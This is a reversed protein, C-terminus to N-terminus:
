CAGAFRALSSQRTLGDWSALGALFLEIPTRDGRSVNGLSNGERGSVLVGPRPGDGVPDAASLAALEEKLAKRSTPGSYLQVPPPEDGFTVVGGSVKDLLRKKVQRKEFKFFIRLNAMDFAKGVATLDSADTVFEELREFVQLAAEVEAEADFADVPVVEAAEIQQQIEVEKQKLKGLVKGMVTILDRSAVTVNYEATEIDNQVRKLDARLKNVSATPASAPVTATALEVLRKHLRSRLDLALLRSKLCHLAFRTATARDVANHNCYAGYSNMYLSCRYKLSGSGYLLSGCNMDFLRVGLPNLGPNQSRPKGKQTGARQDLIEILEAHEKPDIIAPFADTTFEIAASNRVVKPKRDDRYDAVTLDRPGDPGLRRQDGMSRRGHTCVAAILSNRGINTVTTAHWIGSNAHKIGNDTRFRGHDPPEVGEKTLAAAIRCAPLTRLDNLIRRITMMHPHDDPLPLWIVHHHRRHVYEGDVLERKSQDTECYLFRRFGYPARGGTSYGAKALALQSHIIKTALDRRDKGAQHFDVLSVILDGIDIRQGIQIPGAVRDFYILTIGAQRFELELKAGDMPNDPRALRDRRPILVHSVSQDSKVRTLLADLAPRSLLHGQVDYDVFLHGSVPMRDRIMDAIADATGDFKLKLKQAEGRAWAVYEGPTTETRGASDRHYFLATGNKPRNM